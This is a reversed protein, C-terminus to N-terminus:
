WNESVCYKYSFPVRSGDVRIVGFCKSGEPAIMTCFGRIGPGAKEEYRIHRRLLLSLLEADDGEIDEDPHYGGLMASFFEMADLQRPFHRKGLTMPKARGMRVGM